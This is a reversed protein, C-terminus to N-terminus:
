ILIDSAIWPTELENSPICFLRTCSHFTYKLPFASGMPNLVKEQPPIIGWMDRFICTMKGGAWRSQQVTRKCTGGKIYVGLQQIPFCREHRWAVEAFVGGEGGLFGSFVSSARPYLPAKEVWERCRKDLFAFVSSKIEIKIEYQTHLFPDLVLLTYCFPLLGVSRVNEMGAGNTSQSSFHSRAHVYGRIRFCFSIGMSSSSGVQM